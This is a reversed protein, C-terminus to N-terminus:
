PKVPGWAGLLLAVDEANVTGDANVDARRSASPQWPALANPVVFLGTGPPQGDHGAISVGLVVGMTGDGDLDVGRMSGVGVNIAHPVASPVDLVAELTFHGGGDNDYLRLTLDPPKTVFLLDQDGDNDWDIFLIQEPDVFLGGNPIGSPFTPDNPQLPLPPGFYVPPGTRQLAASAIVSGVGIGVGLLVAAGAGRTANAKKMM